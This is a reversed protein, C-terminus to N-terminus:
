PLGVSERPRLVVRYVVLAAGFYGCTLFVSPDLQEALLVLVALSSVAYVFPSLPFAFSRYPRKLEPEKKRLVVVAMVTLTGTILMASSTYNMLEEFRQTGLLVLTWAAQGWLAVVPTGYRPHLRGARAPSHGHKAMAFAIRSGTLVTGNISGLMALMILTTVGVEGAPGFVERAAATGAEGVRALDSVPFVSLFGACLVLYLVIVLLTGGVLARPLNKAPDRIEGGVFIAANWGSYAFYVPLYALALGEMSARNTTVEPSLGGHSRGDITALVFISSVLLVAIPVSTLVVQVRGTIVIGIHNLATLGFVILVAWAMHPEIPIGLKDPLLYADGLLVPMQFTATGVAMTALSGPFIALLQLWGAAFAVGPGYARRLYPYDGGARPLMAGLEAVSLAGFLAALGGVVWVLLFTDSRAVHSAVVPPAIFIGIGLM